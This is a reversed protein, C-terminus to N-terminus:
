GRCSPVHDAAAIITRSRYGAIGTKLQNLRACDGAEIKNWAGLSIAFIWCRHLNAGRSYVNKERSTDANDQQHKRSMLCTFLESCLQFSFVSDVNLGTM